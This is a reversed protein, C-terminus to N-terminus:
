GDILLGCVTYGIDDIASDRDARHRHRVRKLAKMLVVVQKPTIEVGLELSWERAINRFNVHPDGYQKAREILTDAVENLLARVRHEYATTSETKALEAYSEYNM